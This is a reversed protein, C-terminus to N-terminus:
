IAKFVFLICYKKIYYLLLIGYNQNSPFRDNFKDNISKVKEHTKEIAKM